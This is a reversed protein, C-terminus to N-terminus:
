SSHVNQLARRQRHREASQPLRIDATWASYPETTTLDVKEADGVIWCVAQRPPGAPESAKHCLMYNSLYNKVWM